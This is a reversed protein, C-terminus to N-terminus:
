KSIYCKDSRHRSHNATSGVLAVDDLAKLQSAAKSGGVEFRLNNGFQTIRCCKRPISHLTGLLVGNLHILSGLVSGVLLAALINGNQGVHVSLANLGHPNNLINYTAGAGDLVERDILVVKNANLSVSGAQLVGLPSHQLFRERCSSDASLEFNLNYGAGLIRKSNRPALAQIGVIQSRKTGLGNRLLASLTNSNSEGGLHNSCAGDSGLAQVCAYVVVKREVITLATVTTVYRSPGAGHQGACIPEVSNLSDLSSNRACRAVDGNLNGVVVTYGIGESGILFGGNTKSNYTNGVLLTVFGYKNLEVCLQLSSTGEEVEFVEEEITGTQTAVVKGVILTSSQCSGLNEIALNCVVGFTEVVVVRTVGSDCINEELTVVNVVAICITSAATVKDVNTLTTIIVDGDLVIGDM